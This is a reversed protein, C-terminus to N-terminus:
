YETAARRLEIFKPIVKDLHRIYKSAASIVSCQVDFKQLGM